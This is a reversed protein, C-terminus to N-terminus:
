IHNPPKVPVDIYASEPISFFETKTYVPVTQFIPEYSNFTMEPMWRPVEVGTRAKCGKCSIMACPKGEMDACCYCVLGGHPKSACLTLSGFPSGLLVFLAIISPIFNYVKM